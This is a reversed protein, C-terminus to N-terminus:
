DLGAKKLKGRLRSLTVPSVGLFSAIHAHSVRDILGDYEELFREYREAASYQRYAIKWERNQKCYDSLMRAYIHCVELSNQVLGQVLQLPIAIVQSDEEAVITTSAPADLDTNPFIVQGYTHCFGDTMENGNYDVLYDRFLGKVLFCIEKFHEDQRVLYEGKKYSRVCAAEVGKRILEDNTIGLQTRLFLEIQSM